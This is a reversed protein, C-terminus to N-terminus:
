EKRGNQAYDFGRDCEQQIPKVDFFTVANEKLELDFSITGGTLSLAQTALYPKALEKLFKIQELSPNAPQGMDHWAKRPNCVEEDTKHTTLVYTEHDAPLSVTLTLTEHEQDCINWAVGRYGGEKLRVIVANECRHVPHGALKAFFAFTWFTPKTILGNAVLGFGGHFPTFPVGSEEFVDGFTWYSYSAAVDGLRALLGATIAANYNTDHIPCQPSYSTNFETIHMEMGRFADYSDIINRTEQMEEMLSQVTRMTHYVYRGNRAPTEAMYAHRTVFDLPAGTRLCFDLFAHMWDSCNATGCIAPGGVRMDPLVDKVAKATVLYLKLYAELDENEWFVGLNPENWVEVPWGAVESRGYRHVLHSILARVLAAWEEHDKPPTVNGKWYFVTQEGSALSSPMFGLELFPKIKLELYADIVRNLYTFNYELTRKGREDVHVHCIAMDDCFIGHGRIYSFGIDEQVLALQDYYEKQLALGMRGTGVCYTSHNNFAAKANKDVLIKKTHNM